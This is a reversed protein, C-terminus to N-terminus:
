LLRLRVSTIGLATLEVALREAPGVQRPGIRTIAVAFAATEPVNRRGGRDSALLIAARAPTLREYPSCGCVAGVLMPRHAVDEIVRDIGDAGIVAVVHTVTSPLVPEHDAPAKVVKSRSGDAEICLLDVDGSRFIRDVETPDAGILKDGEGRQHIFDAIGEIQAAFVKTTTGARSTWGHALGAARLALMLTTKGGGGVFAVHAPPTLGLAAILEEGLDV